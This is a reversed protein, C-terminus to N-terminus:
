LVKIGEILYAIIVMTTILLMATVLWNSQNKNRKNKKDM